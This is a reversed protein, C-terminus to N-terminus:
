QLKTSHYLPPVVHCARQVPSAAYADTLFDLVPAILKPLVPDTGHITSRALGVADVPVVVAGWGRIICRPGRFFFSLQQLYCVLM